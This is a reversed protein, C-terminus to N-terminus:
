SLGLVIYEGDYGEVEEEFDGLMRRLAILVARVIFVALAIWFLQLLHSELHTELRVMEMLMLPFVAIYATLLLPFSTRGPMRPRGFPVSPQFFFLGDSMLIGLGVGCTAQVLLVRPSCGAFALLAIVLAGLSLICSLAWKRAASACESMRVGAVRFIWSAQLNVPFAFATRLGAVTWFVLLPLVANVEVSDLLIQIKGPHIDLIIACSAAMALGTGCYVALHAQYRTNRRLTQGIFHFIAREGPRRVVRHLLGAIWRSAEGRRQTSGELAMKQMRAWALPYTIVVIAAVTATGGVAYHTLIRAFPPAAAGLRLQEYVGAFWLPPFWRAALDPGTLMTYVSGGYCALHVLLLALVTVSITQVIPSVIRFRHGDLVCLLLGGLALFFLACFTGALSVAIAHAFLGRFYSPATIPIFFTAFLNSGVLFLLLFGALAVAKAAFLQRPQLSLPTLILFDLRDPFLMEWEFIAVGGMVMFSYLVYVYHLYIAPWLPLYSSMMMAIFFSILFGPVAMISIARVVTTLTDGDPQISDNDFFRRFFHKVLTHMVDNPKHM